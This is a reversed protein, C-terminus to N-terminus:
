SAARSQRLSRRQYSEKLHFQMAVRAMDSDGAVIASMIMTHENKVQEVVMPFGDHLEPKWELWSMTFLPNIAKRLAELVPNRCAETIANHFELDAQRFGILWDVSPEGQLELSALASQMNALQEDTRNLAAMSAAQAELGAGFNLTDEFSANEMIEGFAGIDSLPLGGVYNGSGQLSVVLRCERLRLLAHRVTVRSVDFSRALDEETPLREGVPYKGDIIRAVMRAYVAEGLSQRPKPKISEAIATDQM